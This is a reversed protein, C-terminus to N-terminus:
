EVIGEVQREAFAIESELRALCREADALTSRLGALRSAHSANSPDMISQFNDLRGECDRVRQAARDRASRLSHLRRAGENRVALRDSEAQKAQYRDYAEREDARTFGFKELITIDDPSSRRDRECERKCQDSFIDEAPPSERKTM